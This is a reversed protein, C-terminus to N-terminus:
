FAVHPSELKAFTCTLDFSPAVGKDELFAERDM